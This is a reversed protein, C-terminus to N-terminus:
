YREVPALGAEYGLLVDDRMAEKIMKRSYWLQHVGQALVAVFGIEGLVGM